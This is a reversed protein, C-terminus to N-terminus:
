RSESRLLVGFNKRQNRKGAAMKLSPIDRTYSVSLCVKCPQLEEVNGAKAEDMLLKANSTEATLTDEDPILIDETDWGEEM